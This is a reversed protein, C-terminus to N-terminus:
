RTVAVDWCAVRCRVGGSFIASHRAVHGHSRRTQTKGNGSGTTAEVEGTPESVLDEGAVL